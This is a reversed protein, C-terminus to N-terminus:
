SPVEEQQILTDIRAASFPPRTDPLPWGFLFQNAPGCVRSQCPGMGCRTQLKADRWGRRGQLDAFRV